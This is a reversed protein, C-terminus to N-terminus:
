RALALPCLRGNVVTSFFNAPTIPGRDRELVGKM